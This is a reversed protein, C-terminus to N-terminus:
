YPLQTAEPYRKNKQCMQDFCWVEEGVSLQEGNFVASYKSIVVLDSPTKYFNGNPRGTTLVRLWVNDSFAKNQFEQM